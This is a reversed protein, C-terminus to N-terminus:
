GGTDGRPLLFLRTGDWMGRLYASIGNPRRALAMALAYYPLRVFAQGFLFPVLRAEGHHKAGMLMASRALHYATFTSLVTSGPIGTTLSVKHLALPEGLLLCRFGADRARLCWDVDDHGYFFREDMLGVAELARRSFLTACTPVYDVGTTRGRLAALRPLPRGLHRHRSVGFVRDYVGGAYWVREPRAHYTVIPCAAAVRDDGDLVAALATLISPQVVVDNGFLAVYHAGAALAERIGANYGGAVGLNGGTEVFGVEGGWKERLREGSGDRSGNDVLVISHDPYSVRSLSTLCEDTDTFNDYTLVVSCVPAPV